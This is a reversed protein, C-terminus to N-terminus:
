NLSYTPVADIQWSISDDDYGPAGVYLDAVFGGSAELDTLPGTAARARGRLRWYAGDKIAEGSAEGYLVGRSTDLTWTANFINPYVRNSQFATEIQVTLGASEILSVFGDVIVGTKPNTSLFIAVTERNGKALDFTDDGSAESIGQSAVPGTMSIRDRLRTAAGTVNSTRGSIGVAKVWPDDNLDPDFQLCGPSGPQGLRSTGDADRGYWSEAQLDVSEKVLQSNQFGISLWRAAPYGGRELCFKMKGQSHEHFVPAMSLGTLFPENLQPNAIGFPNEIGGSVLSAAHSIASSPLQQEAGFAVVFGPDHCSISSIVSSCWLDAPEFSNRLFAAVSIPLEDSGSKTLLIPVMSHGAPENSATLRPSAGSVPLLARTPGGRERLADSAKACWPGATIADVWAATESQYNGSPALCVVSNRFEEARGTKFWGGLREAMMVSTEYRDRGAIRYSTAASLREASRAVFTPIRAEGGLVIINSIQMRRLAQVTSQPLRRTGDHFLVPVQWYSTWWGAALADAGVVGDVLVVTSGLLECQTASSRWEVVSNAYFAHRVAGDDGDRDVCGLTENPTPALGLAQAINAATEFRDKGAVRFVENVGISILQDEIDPSVASPGGVIIATRASRCGGFRLDRIAELAASSISAGGARASQTVIIPAAYTDVRRYGGPPDFLPDAAASRRLYPESSKNTPDSLPAAALADAPVDGAVLIFSSPCSSLGWWDSASSLDAAGGSTPDPTDFPFDGQGRLLLSATLAVDYKDSGAVRIANAWSELLPDVGTLDEWQSPNTASEAYVPGALAVAPLLVLGLLLNKGIRM